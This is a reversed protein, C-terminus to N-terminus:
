FTDANKDQITAVTRDIVVVLLFSITVIAGYGAEQHEADFWADVAPSDNHDILVPLGNM